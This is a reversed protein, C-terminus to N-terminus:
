TYKNKITRTTCISDSLWTQITYTPTMLNNTLKHKTHVVEVTESLYCNFNTYMIMLLHAHELYLKYNRRPRVNQSILEDESIVSAKWWKTEPITQLIRAMVFPWHENHGILFIEQFQLLLIRSFILHLWLKSVTYYHGGRHYSRNHLLYQEFYM